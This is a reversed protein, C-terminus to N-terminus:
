SASAAYAEAGSLVDQAYSVSANYALVADWWDRPDRLDRGDACLFRAATLAADDIDQPDPRAGDRTARVGWRRWTEPLFQMPGVARDWARDGDLRGGDTDRIARVGPSGDLPVGVIPRDPRGDQGIRNGDLQGHRSEMRGIGALTGWSLGCSPREGRLWMEARGYAAVVRAPVETTASVREAWADLEVQDSANPRDVPARVAARPVAAHPQPRREPVTFTSDPEDKTIGVTLILTLGTGVLLLVLLLRGLVRPPPTSDVM